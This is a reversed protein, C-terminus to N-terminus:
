GKLTDVQRNLIAGPNELISEIVSLVVLAYNRDERDLTEIVEVAYLSLAQNLSFDDQLDANVRVGDPTIAVIDADLLARFVSLASHGHKWKKDQPEHCERILNKLARCGNEEQRCLVNLVMGTTVSFRSKLAEPVSTQLKEMTAKDWPAYGRDPAKKPRIKRLKKPDDGAKRRAQLNEIAHEPAQVVVSGQTDFGRRGARGAIQQFDRVSLI